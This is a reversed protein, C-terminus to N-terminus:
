KFPDTKYISMTMWNMFQTVKLSLIDNVIKHLPPTGLKHYKDSVCEWVERGTVHEYGLMRFEEAKSNCINEIVENLEVESLEPPEAQQVDDAADPDEADSSALEPGATLKIASAEGGAEPGSWISEAETDPSDGSQEVEPKSDPHEADDGGGTLELYNAQREENDM